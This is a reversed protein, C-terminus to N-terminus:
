LRTRACRRHRGLRHISAHSYEKFEIGVEAGALPGTRGTVHGNCTIHRAVGDTASVWYRAETLRVEINTERIGAEYRQIWDERMEDVRGRWRDLWGTETIEFSEVAYDRQESVDLDKLFTFSSQTDPLRDGTLKVAARLIENRRDAEKALHSIAEFADPRVELWISIPEAEVMDGDLEFRDPEVGATISTVGCVQDGGLDARIKELWERDPPSGMELLIYKGHFHPATMYPSDAICGRLTLKQHLGTRDDYCASVSSRQVIIRLDCTRQQKSM